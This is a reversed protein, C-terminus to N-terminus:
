NDALYMLQAKAVDINGGGVIVGLVRIKDDFSLVASSFSLVLFLFSINIIKM